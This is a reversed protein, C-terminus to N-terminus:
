FFKEKATAIQGAVSDKINFNDSNIVSTNGNSGNGFNLVNTSNGKISEWVGIISGDVATSSGNLVTNNGNKEGSNFITTQNSEVSQYTGFVSDKVTTNSENIVTNSAASVPVAIAASMACVALMSLIKRKM